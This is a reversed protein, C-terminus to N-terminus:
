WRAWSPLGGPVIWHELLVGVALWAMAGVAAGLLFTTFAVGKFDASAAALEGCGRLFDRCAPVFDIPSTGTTM